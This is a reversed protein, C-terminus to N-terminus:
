QKTNNSKQIVHITNHDAIESKIYIIADSNPQLSNIETLITGDAKYITITNGKIPTRAIQINKPMARWQRVDATDTSLQYLLGWFKGGYQELNDELAYQISSKAIMNLAAETMIAPLKKNFEQQVINDMNAIETTSQQELRLYPYSAARQYITPISIDTTVVKNTFLYSPFHYTFSRKIMGQGNEYILWAYHQKHLTSQESLKLDDQVQKQAPLMLATQRFLDRAKKYDNDLYFFLASIYTAFPNVFDPYLQEPTIDGRYNNVKNNALSNQKIENIYPSHNYRDYAQNIEQEFYESARRQRDLARNFEVRANDFDNLSMFNLGKYVNMMIKEYNEGQYDNINNNVLISGVSQTIASIALATEKQKFIAESQDLYTISKQYDGCQRALAGANLTWLLPDNKIQGDVSTYDCDTNILQQEYQDLDEQYGSFIACGNLTILITITFVLRITANM